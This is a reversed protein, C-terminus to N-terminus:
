VYVISKKLLLCHFSFYSVARVTPESNQAFDTVLHIAGVAASSGDNENAVALITCENNFRINDPQMGAVIKSILKPKVPAARRVTEYHLILNEDTAVIMLHDGCVAVDRIESDYETLDISYPTIAPLGGNTEISSYDIITIYAGIESQTYVYGQVPDYAFHEVAGTGFGYGKWVEGNTGNQPPATTLDPGYPVFLRNKFVLSKVGNTSVTSTDFKLQGDVDKLILLFAAAFTVGIM